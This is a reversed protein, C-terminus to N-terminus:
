KSCVVRALLPIPSSIFAAHSFHPPASPMSLSAYMQEYSHVNQAPQETSIFCTQGFQPPSNRRRGFRCPGRADAYVQLIAL